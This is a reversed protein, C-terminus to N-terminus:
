CYDGVLIYVVVLGLDRFLSACIRIGGRTDRGDVQGVKENINGCDGFRDGDRIM